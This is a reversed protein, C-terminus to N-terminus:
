HRRKTAHSPKNDMAKDITGLFRSAYDPAKLAFGYQSKAAEMQTASADFLVPLLVPHFPCEVSAAEVDQMNGIYALVVDIQGSRLRQAMHPVDIAVEADHGARRLESALESGAGRHNAAKPVYILISAPSIAAYPRAYPSDRGHLLLKDGCALVRDFPFVATWLGIVVLATTYRM